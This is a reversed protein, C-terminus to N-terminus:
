KSKFNLFLINAVSISKLVFRNDLSCKEMYKINCKSNCIKLEMPLYFKGEILIFHISLPLAVFGSETSVM